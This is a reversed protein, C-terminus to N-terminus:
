VWSIDRQSFFLWSIGWSFAWPFFPCLRQDSLFRSSFFQPLLFLLFLHIYLQFALRGRSERSFGFPSYKRERWPAEWCELVSLDYGTREGEIRTLFCSAHSLLGKLTGLFDYICFFVFIMLIAVFFRHINIKIQIEYFRFFIESSGWFSLDPVAPRSERSKKM